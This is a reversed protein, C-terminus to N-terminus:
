ILKFKDLVNTRSSFIEGIYVCTHYFNNERDHGPVDLGQPGYILYVEIQVLDKMYIKAKKSMSSFFIKLHGLGIKTIIEGWLSSSARSRSLRSNEEGL